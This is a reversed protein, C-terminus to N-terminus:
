APRHVILVNRETHRATAEAVSGLLVAGIGTRGHSGLVILSADADDAADVISQWVPEGRGVVPKADFGARRAVNAGEAALTNADEDIGDALDDPWAAAPGALPMAVLPQSVTLVLAHRGHDLENAAQEIARRAYESGDYAFLIPADHNPM